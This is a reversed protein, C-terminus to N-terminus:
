RRGTLEDHVREMALGALAWLPFYDFRVLGHLHRRADSYDWPAEGFVQRLAWGSTYEIAMFGTGYVIARVATSRRRLADHLPEYLPQLLGYIPLMWLSTRAALRPDKHRLFDHLGTFAVEVCWGLLGYAVFRGRRSSISLRTTEGAKTAPTSSMRRTVICARKDLRM